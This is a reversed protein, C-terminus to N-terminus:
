RIRISLEIITSRCRITLVGHKHPSPTTLIHFALRRPVTSDTCFGSILFEPPLDTIEKRRIINMKRSVTEMYAGHSARGASRSRFPAMIAYGTQVKKILSICSVPLHIGDAASPSLSNKLMTSKLYHMRCFYSQYWFLLSLLLVRGHIPFGSQIFSRSTNQLYYLFFPDDKGLVGQWFCGGKSEGYERM